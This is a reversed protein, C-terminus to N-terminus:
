APEGDELPEKDSPFTVRDEWDGNPWFELELIDGAANRRIRKIRPCPQYYDLLGVVPDHFGACFVCGRAVEAYEELEDPM